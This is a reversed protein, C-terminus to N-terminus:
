NVPRKRGNKLFNLVQEPLTDVHVPKSIYGDCGAALMDDLVQPMLNATLAIIPINQLTAMKRLYRTATLGDMEPMNIDMLILEPLHQEALAIGEKASTAELLDFGAANLIRRVLVLNDINDEIYLIRHTM